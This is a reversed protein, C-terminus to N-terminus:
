REKGDAEVFGALVFGEGAVAHRREQLCSQIGEKQYLDFNKSGKNHEGAWQPMRSCILMNLRKKVCSERKGFKAIKRHTLSPEALADWTNPAGSPIDGSRRPIGKHSVSGPRPLGSAM